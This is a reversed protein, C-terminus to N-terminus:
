YKEDFSNCLYPFDYINKIILNCDLPISPLLPFMSVLDFVHMIQINEIFSQCKLHFIDNSFHRLTM